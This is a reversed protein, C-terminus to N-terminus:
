EGWGFAPTLRRTESEIARNTSVDRGPREALAGGSAQRLGEAEM